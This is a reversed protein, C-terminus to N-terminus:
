VQYAHEGSLALPKCAADRAICPMSGARRLPQEGVAPCVILENRQKQVGQMRRDFGTPEISEDM